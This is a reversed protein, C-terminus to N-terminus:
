LDQLDPDTAPDYKEVTPCIPIEGLREIHLIQSGYVHMPHGDVDIEWLQPGGVNHETIIGVYQTIDRGQGQIFTVKDGFIPFNERRTLDPRILKM